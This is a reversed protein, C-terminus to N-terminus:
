FERVMWTPIGLVLGLAKLDYIDRKHKEFVFRMVLKNKNCLKINQRVRGLIESKEKGKSDIIEDLNIGIGVDMKKAIKALVHNFGSNSQKQFDKRNKQNILLLSICKGLKEVVKRNLDDDDSSFIVNEGKVLEIKKRAKEFSNEKIIM